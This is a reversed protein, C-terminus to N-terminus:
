DQGIARLRAAGPADICPANDRAASLRAIERLLLANRNEKATLKAATQQADAQAQELAAQRRRSEAATAAEQEAAAAAHGAAYATHKVHNHYVLGALVLAAAMLVIRCVKCAALTRLVPGAILLAGM